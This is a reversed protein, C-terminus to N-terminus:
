PVIKIGDTKSDNNPEQSIISIIYELEETVERTSPRNKRQEDVCAVALLGFAKMTELELNNAQKTLGADVADFLKEKDALNTVYVALNVDDERNFDIAKKSTLLELLVVGFSYVDSRDTLQYNQYYEPDLYGLTGQACTSIHTAETDVLRSLGFDSVKADLKEDLLINSSKIDRHFIPPVASFHLYALGDATQKAIFLRRQWTLTGWENSYRGHLHEFLTGNPVYEYVLVPMDLDLCCGLLRVLSRHNVQCLICVENLVQDMGLTKGPKAKKIAALTGDDLNGKYVEGFGGVGLLNEKSFNNTSRRMEKGSFLKAAKGHNHANLVEERQRVLRRHAERKIHKKHQQVLVFFIIIIAIGCAAFILGHYIKKRNIHHPCGRKKCKRVECTGNILNWRLGENCFCRKKSGAVVRNPLCTSNELGHCDLSSTCLPEVPEDWQIQVGSEPWKKVPLTPVLRVFSEYSTCGTLGTDSIDLRYATKSGGTTYSCCPLGKCRTNKYANCLSGSTCDMSSLKVTSNTCNMMLVTNSNSISFPLSQNLWIGGSKLDLRACRNQYYEQPRITLRQTKPSISTILYSSGNLTDLWLKGTTCRVKYLQDGCSQSISLPYPVTIKGCNPCSNKAEVERTVSIDSFLFVTVVLQLFLLQRYNKEADMM